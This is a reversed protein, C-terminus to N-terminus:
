NKKFIYLWYDFVNSQLNTVDESDKSGPLSFFNLFLALMQTNWLSTIQNKRKPVVDWEELFRSLHWGTFTPDM